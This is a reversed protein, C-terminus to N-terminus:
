KKDYISQKSGSEPDPTWLSIGFLREIRTPYHTTPMFRKWRVSNSDGFNVDVIGDNASWEKSTNVWGGTVYGYGVSPDTIYDGPPGGLIAEVESQTLGIRIQDFRGKFSRKHKRVLITGGLAILLLLGTV